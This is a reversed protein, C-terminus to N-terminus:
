FLKALRDPLTGDIAQIYEDNTCAYYEDDILAWIRQTRNHKKFVIDEDDFSVVYSSFETSHSPHDQVLHNRGELFYWIVTAIVKSEAMSLADINDFCICKIGNAEGAYRAIQCLEESTLGTPFADTTNPVESSKVVNLNIHIYNGDRIIPEVALPITRIKGLSMSGYSDTDVKQIIDMDSFHRQYGIFSHSYQYEEKGYIKNCLFIKRGKLSLSFIDQEDWGLLVPIINKEKCAQILEELTLSTNEHLSGFELISLADFHYSLNKLVRAITDFPSNINGILAIKQFLNEELNIPHQYLFTNTQYQFSQDFTM